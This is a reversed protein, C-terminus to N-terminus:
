GVIMKKEFTTIKSVVEGQIIYEFKDFSDRFEEIDIEGGFAVLVSWHPAPIIKKKTTNEILIKMLLMESDDFKSDHKNDKIFAICCNFSCFFGFVEYQSPIINFNLTNAINNTDVNEKIIYEESNNKSSYVKYIQNPKYKIPCSIGDNNYSHKCWFCLKKRYDNLIPKSSMINNTNLM